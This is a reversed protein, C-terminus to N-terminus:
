GGLAADHEDNQAAPRPILAGDTLPLHLVEDPEFRLESLGLRLNHEDIRSRRVAQFRVRLFELVPLVLLPGGLEEVHEIRVVRHDVGISQAPVGRALGGISRRKNQVALAHHSERLGAARV